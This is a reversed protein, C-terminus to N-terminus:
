SSEKARPTGHLSAMGAFVGISLIDPRANTPIRNLKARQMKSPNQFKDWTPYTALQLQVDKKMGPWSHFYVQRELVKKAGEHATGPRQHAEEIDKGIISTLVIVRNTGDVDERLLRMEDGDAIRELHQALVHLYPSSAQFQAHTPTATANM